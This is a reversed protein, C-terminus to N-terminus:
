SMPGSTASLCARVEAETLDTIEGDDSVALFRRVARDRTVRYKAEYYHGSELTWWFMVGRTGKRNAAAYDTKADLFERDFGYRESIGTIEACWPQHRRRHSRGLGAREMVNADDGYLGIAEARLAAKV